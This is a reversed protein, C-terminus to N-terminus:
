CKCNVRKKVLGSSPKRKLALARRNATSRGAGFTSVHLADSISSPVEFVRQQTISARLWPRRPVQPSWALTASGTLALCMAAYRCM